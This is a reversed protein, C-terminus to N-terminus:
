IMLGIRLLNVTPLVGKGVLRAVDIVNQTASLGAPLNDSFVASMPIQAGVDIGITFGSRFSTLYGIRPNVFWTEASIGVPGTLTTSTAAGVHQHGASAGLFFGERFPFIRVDAAIAWLTTEVGAITSKPLVSYELGLGVSREFRMMGEVSLPRPFGVGGFAGVAFHEPEEERTGDKKPADRGDGAFAGAAFLSVALGSALALLSKSSL